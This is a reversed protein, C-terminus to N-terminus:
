QPTGIAWPRHWPHNPNELQDVDISGYSIADAIKMDKISEISSIEPFIIATIVVADTFSTNLKEKVYSPHLSSGDLIVMYGHEAWVLLWQELNKGSHFPITAEVKILLLEYRTGNGPQFIIHLQGNVVVRKLYEM